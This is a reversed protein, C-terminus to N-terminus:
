REYENAPNMIWEELKGTLEKGNAFECERLLKQIEVNAILNEGHVVEDEFQQELMSYAWWLGTPATKTKSTQAIENDVRIINGLITLAELDWKRDAKTM